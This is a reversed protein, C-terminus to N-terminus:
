PIPFDKAAQSSALALRHAICHVAVMGPCEKRLIAAAGNVKGTMSRAGDSAFGTCKHREIGNEDM